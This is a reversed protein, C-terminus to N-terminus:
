KSVRERQASFIKLFPRSGLVLLRRVLQVSLEPSQSLSRCIYHYRASSKLASM